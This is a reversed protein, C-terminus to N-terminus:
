NETPPLLAHSFLPALSAEDLRRASRDAMSCPIDAPSIIALHNVWANSGKQVHVAVNKVLLIPVPDLDIRPLNILTFVDRMPNPVRQRQVGRAPLADKAIVVCM